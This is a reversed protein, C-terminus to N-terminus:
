MLLAAALMGVDGLESNQTTTNANYGALQGQYQNQFASMIDPASTQSQAATAGPASAVQAGGMLAQYENLPIQQEQGINSIDQGTAALGQGFAQNEAQGYASSRNAQFAQMANDYAPTGPTAGSNRLSADMSEQQQNWYPDMSATQTGYAAQQATNGYQQLQSSNPLPNNQMAQQAANLAGGAAGEGQLQLGQQGTLLQQEPASLQQTETYQPAGTSGVGTQQFSTTGTPGVQNVDNLQTNYSAAQEGYEAQAQATQYPNPAAPASGKGM